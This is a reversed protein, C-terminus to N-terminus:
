RNIEQSLLGIVAGLLFHRCHTTRKTSGMTAMKASRQVRRVELLFNGQISSTDSLNKGITM